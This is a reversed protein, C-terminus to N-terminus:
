DNNNEAMDKFKIISVENIAIKSLLEKIKITKENIEMSSNIVCELDEEMKLGDTELESMIIKFIREANM